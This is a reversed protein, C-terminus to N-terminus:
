GELGLTLVHDEPGRHAQLFYDAKAGIGTVVAVSLTAIPSPATKCSVVRSIKQFLRSCVPFIDPFPGFDRPLAANIIIM